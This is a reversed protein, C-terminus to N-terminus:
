KERLEFNDADAHEKELQLTLENLFGDVTIRQNTLGIKRRIRSTRNYLSNANEHGLLYRLDDTPLGLCFCCCLLIEDRNLLPYRRKLYTAIGDFRVEAFLLCDKVLSKEGGIEDSLRNRLDRALVEPRCDSLLAADIVKRLLEM